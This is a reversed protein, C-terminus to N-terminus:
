LFLYVFVWVFPTAVLLSDFRDLFGGHGPMMQGSDKVGAMRKLKSEFLDGVTGIISSLAAVFILPKFPLGFWFNGGYGVILVSLVVGTVTGEWTKKPSVKSLPTKGFITGALYAMTDNIWISVILVVPLIWGISPNFGELARGRLALMLSWSLSIYLLGGLLFLIANASLKKRIVWGGIVLFPLALAIFWGGLQQLSIPLFSLPYTQPDLLWLMGGFGVLMTTIRIFAPVQVFKEHISEVLRNYEFWCGFHIVTFLLLFSWQNWVLAGVMICGFVIASLTRTKFTALNFAM